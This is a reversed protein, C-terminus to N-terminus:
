GPRFEGELPEFAVTIQHSPDLSRADIEMEMYAATVNWVFHAKRDCTGLNLSPAGGHCIIRLGDRPQAPEADKTCGSLVLLWACLLLATKTTRTTKM